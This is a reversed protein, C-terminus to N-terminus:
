SLTKFNPALKQRQRINFRWGLIFMPNKKINAWHVHEMKGWSYYAKRGREDIHICDGVQIKRQFVRSRLGSGPLHGKSMGKSLRGLNGAEQIFCGKRELWCKDRSYQSESLSWRFKPKPLLTFLLFIDTSFVQRLTCFITQVIYRLFHPWHM